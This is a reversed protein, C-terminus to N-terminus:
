LEVIEVGAEHLMLDGVAISEAWPSGTNDTACRVLRRIGAQIIGRACDACAAWVVVLTGQNTCVGHRCAQYIANREAHEVFQYKTPREWREPTSIVNCPFNNIGITLLRLEDDLLLAGNKKSPDPSFTAHWRAADMAETYTYPKM